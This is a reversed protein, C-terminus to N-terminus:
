DSRFHVGNPPGAGGTEGLAVNRPNEGTNERGEGQLEKGKLFTGKKRYNAGGRTHWM